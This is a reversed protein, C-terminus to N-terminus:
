EFILEGFNNDANIGLANAEDTDLHLALCFNDQIRVIVNDLIGGREGTIKIKVTQGQRLNNQDAEKTSIHLHRKSIIVGEELNLEGVPGVLKLSASAAIDSSLRLPATIGLLKCDSHTLEVQTHHRLPGVIRAKLEAKPGLLRVTEEAAFEGLQSLESKKNLQYNVGFLIDLDRQGLHIHRASIEIPIQM